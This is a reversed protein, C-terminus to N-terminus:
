RDDEDGAVVVEAGPEVGAVDLSVVVNEGVELGEVVETFSWNRIGVRIEREEIAGGSLVFVRDDRVLANTPIRPVGDRASLIVEVDASTGPLLVAADGADLEIEVEVTRNQEQVDLVYPAVRAVRGPFDRGRYSDVTVRAPLGAAIRASDVEDMPASVYLSGRDLIDLVAPMPLGPPSPTTWEGLDVSSEAIVGDFPARLVTKSLEAEALGVAAEARAVDATAAECAARATAQASESQDLVDVSLIGDRALRDVREYERRARDAALCARDREAGAADRERRTLSLRARQLSDELRLVVDGARVADGEHFPLEVVRGGIEPSLDARRRVKVTGARTNTVTDEVLGSEVQRVRVVIPDPAFVTARLLFVAAVAAAAIGLRILWARM